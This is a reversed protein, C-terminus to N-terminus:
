VSLEATMRRAVAEPSLARQVAASMARRTADPPAHAAMERMAGAWADIDRGPLVRGGDADVIWPAAGVQGSMLSPTGVMAAEVVAYNFTDIVSPALHVDAAALFSKVDEVPVHGAFIVRDAVGAAEAIHKLRGAYSGFGPFSRDGGCIALRADPTSVRAFAEVALELGKAPDLRCMVMYLTAHDPVGLRARASARGRRRFEALPEAPLQMWCGIPLPVIFIRSPDCGGDVLADRTVASNARVRTARGLVWLKLAERWRSHPRGPYAIRGRLYLTDHISVVWRRAGALAVFVGMWDGEVLVVDAGRTARVFRRVASATTFFRRGAIPKALRDALWLV